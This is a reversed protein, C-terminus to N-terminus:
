GVIFGARRMILTKDDKEMPCGRLVEGIESRIPRIITGKSKVLSIMVLDTLGVWLFCQDCDVWRRPPGCLPRMIKSREPAERIGGPTPLLVMDSAPRRLQSVEIAYREKPLKQGGTLQSMPPFRRRVECPSSESESREMELSGASLGAALRRFFSFYLFCALSSVLRRESPPRM